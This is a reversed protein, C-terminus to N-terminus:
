RGGPRAPSCGMSSYGKEMASVLCDFPKTAGSKPLDKETAGLAVLQNILPKIKPNYEFEFTCQAIQGGFLPNKDTSFNDVSKLKWQGIKVNFGSTILAEKDNLVDYSVAKLPTASVLHSPEYDQIKGNMLRAQSLMPKGENTSPEPLGLGANKNVDTSTKVEEFNVIKAGYSEDIMVIKLIKADSLKISPVKGNYLPRMALVGKGKPTLFYLVAKVKATYRVINPEGTWEGILPSGWNLFVTKNETRLYGASALKELLKTSAETHQNENVATFFDSDVMGAKDKDFSSVQAIYGQSGFGSTNQSLNFWDEGPNETQLQKLIRESEPDTVASVYSIKEGDYGRTKIPFVDITSAKILKDSALDALAKSVLNNQADPLVLGLASPNLSMSRSELQPLKATLWVNDFKPKAELSKNIAEAMESKPSSCGILVLSSGALVLSLTTIQITKVTIKKPQQSAQFM